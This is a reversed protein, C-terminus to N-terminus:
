KLGKSKNKSLRIFIFVAIFITLYKFSYFLSGLAFDKNEESTTLYNYVPFFTFINLIMYISSVTVIIRNKFIVSLALVAMISLFLSLGLYFLRHGTSSKKFDQWLIYNLMMREKTKKIDIEKIINYGMIGAM